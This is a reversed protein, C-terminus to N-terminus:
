TKGLRTETVNWRERIFLGAWTSGVGAKKLTKNNVPVRKLVMEAALNGIRNFQAEKDNLRQKPLKRVYVEVGDKNIFIISNDDRGPVHERSMSPYADPPKEVEAVREKLENVEAKVEAVQIKTPRPDKVLNVNVYNLSTDSLSHGLVDQIWATLAVNKKDAFLEYSLTAYIRRLDHFTAAKENNSNKLDLENIRRNL